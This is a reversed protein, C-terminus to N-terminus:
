GSNKTLLSPEGMIESFPSGHVLINGTSIPVLGLIAKFLTSKGAGNPGVLAVMRGHDISFSINELVSAGGLKVSVNEIGIAPPQIIQTDPIKHDM